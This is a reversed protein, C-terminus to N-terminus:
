LMNVTLSRYFGDVNAPYVNLKVLITTVLDIPSMEMEKLIQVVSLIKVHDPITNAQYIWQLACPPQPTPPPPATPGAAAIM